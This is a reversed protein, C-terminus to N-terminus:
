ENSRRDEKFRRILHDLLLGAGFMAFGAAEMIWFERSVGNDGDVLFAWTWAIIQLTIGAGYIMDM